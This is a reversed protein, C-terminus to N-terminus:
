GGGRPEGAKRPVIEIRVPAEGDDGVLKLTEPAYLSLHKALKELAEVKSHLKVKLTGGTQNTTESIEAIAAAADASLKDSPRLSVGGPGWDMVERLDAFALRAIERLVRETTIENKAAAKAKLFEIRASVDSHAALKASHNWVSADKWKKSRPYARRYAESQTLGQAVGAAFKEQKPTLRARDVM